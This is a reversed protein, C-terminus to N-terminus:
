DLRDNHFRLSHGAIDPNMRSGTKELREPAVVFCEARAAGFGPSTLVTRYARSAHDIQPRSLGAQPGLGAHVFAFFNLMVTLHTFAKPESTGDANLIGVFTKGDAAQRVPCSACGDLAECVLNLRM